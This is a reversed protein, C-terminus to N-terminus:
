GNKKKFMGIGLVAWLPAIVLNILTLLQWHWYEGFPVGLSAVVFIASPTWPIISEIMTGYDEISRSLVRRDIGNTDYKDKFAEGVIFSTAYQNSTMANCIGSSFLSSIVISSRSKAFAFLRNVIIPMADIKDILGIFVFVFLAIIIPESLAYLGGRNFLSELYDPYETIWGAMQVEFGHHMTKMVDAFSYDQFLLAVLCAILSSILLVPVTPFKKISGYLVVLVPLLLFVNFHFLSDIANLTEVVKPSDLQMIAPPYIFGLFLYIGGAILASPLTTYLMSQIHGYLDVETALAAMNTTDSLPSIKDGFYAGGIIAGATIAMHADIVIAIGIIVIGVTGVSGWSTGTFTSFIVPILLALLYILKPHIIKIGFYVLMPITGSIIWSGIVLGIMFLIFLTPLAKSLRHMIVQVMDDWNCGLYKLQMAAIFSSLIFVLELPMREQDLFVPRILLGYIIIFLLVSVPFLAQWFSVKIKELSM